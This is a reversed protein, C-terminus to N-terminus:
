INDIPYMPRMILKFPIKATNQPTPGDTLSMVYFAANAKLEPFIYGQKVVVCDYEKWDEIGAKKFQLQGQYSKHNNAVVIDINTNEVHVTVCQGTVKYLDDNGLAVPNVVEGKYLVKVDLPVPANLEDVGVGLDIHCVSGIEQKELYAECSPDNISAILFTKDSKCALIQRLITTNWGKAGSTTNDGSDTIVCPKGNFNLVDELAKEPEATYGTYHFEHRKDWVYKALEDAKQECYEIDNETAPVVVIGCGAEPCDHRLYGVHWSCSLVRPDKEMEDMYKNISLVPEDASVSQEGGLILPLKRYISHINQRNKVLDCTFKAVKRRTKTSDTHPSERYSRICQTAEVYEKTLNGHPDCAVCIPVYPGVLERIVKLIHHDGSGIGGDVYSAGHLMLYIGDIENIHEKVTEVFCDEIYDFTHKKTVGSGGSVAYIAPIIEIGEQEFIDKVEMKEILDDGFQIDYSTIENKVPINANSETIFTGILIKKM